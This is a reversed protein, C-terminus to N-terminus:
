CWWVAEMCGVLSAMMVGPQLRAAVRDAHVQRVPQGPRVRHGGAEERPVRAALLVLQLVVRLYPETANSQVV